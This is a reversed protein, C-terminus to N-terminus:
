SLTRKKVGGSDGEKPVPSVVKNRSDAEKRDEYRKKENLSNEDQDDSHDKNRHRREEDRKERIRRDRRKEKERRRDSSHRYRSSSKHKHRDSISDDSSFESLSKQRDQGVKKMKFSPLKPITGRFGFGLSGGKGFAGGIASGRHEGM